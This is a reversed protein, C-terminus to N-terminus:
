TRNKLALFFRFASLGVAMGLALMLISSMTAILKDLGLGTEGQGIYYMTQYLGYGPVCPIIALVSFVSAIMRMRRATIQALLSAACSGVFIASPDAWGAQLLAWYLMYGASGILSAPIWSRVPAHLMGAFGVTAVFSILLSKIVDPLM